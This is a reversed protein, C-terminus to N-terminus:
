HRPLLLREPVRNRLLQAGLKYVGPDLHLGGALSCSEPTLAPRLRQTGLRWVILAHLGIRYMEKGDGM